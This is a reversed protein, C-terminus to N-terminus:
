PLNEGSCNTRLSELNTRCLQDFQQAKPRKNVVTVTYTIQGGNGGKTMFREATEPDLSWLWWQKNHIGTLLLWDFTNPKVNSWLFQDSHSYGDNYPIARPKSAFKIEIRVRGNLAFDFPYWGPRIVMGPLTAILEEGENLPGRYNYPIIQYTRQSIPQQNMLLRDSTKSVARRANRPLPPEWLEASLLERKLPWCM